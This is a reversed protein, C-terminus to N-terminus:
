NNLAQKAPVEKFNSDSFYFWHDQDDERHKAYSVYHGGGM